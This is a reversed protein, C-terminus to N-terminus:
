ENGGGGSNGKRQERELRRREARSLNAKYSGEPPNGKTVAVHKPRIYSKIEDHEALRRRLEPLYTQVAYMVLSAKSAGTKESLGSLVDDVERPVSLNVRVSGTKSTRMRLPDTHAIPSSIADNKSYKDKTDAPYFTDSTEAHPNREGRIVHRPSSGTMEASDSLGGHRLAADAHTGSATAQLPNEQRCDPLSNSTGTANSM